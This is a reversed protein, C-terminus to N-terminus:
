AAKGVAGALKGVPVVSTVTNVAPRALLSLGAVVLAGGLAVEAIRVWNQQNALWKGADLVAGVGAKAAGFADQAPQLPNPVSFGSDPTIVHAGPPTELLPVPEQKAHQANGLHSAFSGNKFTVWDGWGHQQWERYAMQANVLPDRWDGMKLVDANWYSNIQWLGYDTSHHSDNNHNTALTDGGSEAWAVAVAISLNPEKFGANAAATKIQGLTLKAM